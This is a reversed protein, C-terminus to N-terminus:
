KENIWKIPRWNYIKNSPYTKFDCFWEEWEAMQLWKTQGDIMKPLFLFRKVRKSEVKRNKVFHEISYFVDNLVGIGKFEDINNFLFIAFESKSGTMPELGSQHVWKYYLKEAEPDKFEKM